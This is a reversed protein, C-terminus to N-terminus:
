DNQSLSIIGLAIMVAVVATSGLALLVIALVKQLANFATSLAQNSPTSMNVTTNGVQIPTTSVTINLANMGAQHFTSEANLVTSALTQIIYTIFGVTLGLVLGIILYTVISRGLRGFTSM